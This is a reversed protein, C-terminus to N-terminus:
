SAHDREIGNTGYRGTVAAQACFFAGKLNVDM